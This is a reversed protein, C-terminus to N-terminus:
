FPQISEPCGEYVITGLIRPLIGYFELKEIPKDMYVNLEVLAFSNKLRQKRFAEAQTISSLNIEHHQMDRDMLSIM